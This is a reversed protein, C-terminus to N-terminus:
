TDTGKPLQATRSFRGSRREQVAYPHEQKGPPGSVCGSVTLNGNHVDIHDKDKALGSLGFAAMFLNKEPNEHIKM